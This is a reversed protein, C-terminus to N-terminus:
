GCAPSPAQAAESSVARWASLGAGVLGALNGLEAPAVRVTECGPAMANRRMYETAPELLLGGLESIGGGVVIMEPSFVNCVSVLGVGLWDAFELVAALAGPYGQRALRTVAGGGLEGRERLSLLTGEPDAERDGARAAAYRKLARGSAYMELCGHGGCGCLLGDKLVVMHGLEGAGGGAGRYVHGDLFLGGGVGTGLTLMVVHQLGAGAGCVAEALVAAQADNDLVVPLGLADRILGALPVEVLPLNPSTVMVGRAFDVTGACALGIVGPSFDGFESLARRLTAELGSVFVGGSETCSPEVLPPALLVGAQDVPGVAVKTGGIDVGLVSIM